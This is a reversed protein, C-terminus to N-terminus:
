KKNRNKLRKNRRLLFLTFLLNAVCLGAIAFIMTHVDKSLYQLALVTAIVILVLLIYIIYTTVKTIKDLNM